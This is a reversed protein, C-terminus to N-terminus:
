SGSKVTLYYNGSITNYSTGDLFMYTITYTKATTPKYTLYGNTDIATGKQEEGDIFWKYSTISAPGNTVTPIFRITKDKTVTVDPIVLTETTGSVIYANISVSSQTGSDIEIGGSTGPTVYDSPYLDIEDKVGSITVPLGPIGVFSGSTGGTRTWQWEKKIDSWVWEYMLISIEYAGNSVAGVDFGSSSVSAIIGDPSSLYDKPVVKEAIVDSGDELSKIGVTYRFGGNSEQNYKDLSEVLLIDFSSLKINCRTNSNDSVVLSSPDITITQNYRNIEVQGSYTYIENGSYYAKISFNWIGQAFYGISDLNEIPIYKDGTDGYISTNDDNSWTPNMKIMFDTEEISVSVNKEGSASDQKLSLDPETISIEYNDSKVSVSNDCSIFLILAMFLMLVIFVNRYLKM